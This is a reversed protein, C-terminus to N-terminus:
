AAACNLCLTFSAAGSSRLLVQQASIHAAHRQARYNGQSSRAPVARTAQFAGQSASISLM